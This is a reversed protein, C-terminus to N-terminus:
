AQADCGGGFCLQTGAVWPDKAIADALLIVIASGTFERDNVIAFVFKESDAQEIGIRGDANANQM